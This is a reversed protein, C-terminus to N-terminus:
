SDETGNRTQAIGCTNWPKDGPGISPKVYMYVRYFSECCSNETLIDIEESLTSGDDSVEHLYQAASAGAIQKWGSMIWLEVGSLM